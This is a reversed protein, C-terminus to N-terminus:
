AKIVHITENGYLEVDKSPKAIVAVALDDAIGILTAEKSGEHAVITGLVGADIGFWLSGKSDCYIRKREM